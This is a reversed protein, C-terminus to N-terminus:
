DAQGARARTQALRYSDTGTEIKAAQDRQAPEELEAGISRRCRVVWRAGQLSLGFPNQLQEASSQLIM